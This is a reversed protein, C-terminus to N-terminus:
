SGAAERYARAFAAAADAWTPRARASALGAAALASREADDTLLGRLARAFADPGTGDAWAAVGGLVEPLAGVRSCVVPVGSAQAELAPLGFGEYETPYLLAEAGALLTALADDDVPGAHVVGDQAAVTEPGVVVLRCLGAGGARRWADAAVGLRRRAAGGFAVVYPQEDKAGPGDPPRPGFRPDAALPAVVVRDPSVRYRECVDERVVESAVIIRRATRAAHRAQARFAIRKHAPLWDPRFEFTLDWISVVMPVPQRYPLGYFPCHFVGPFGRLWRPAADQLWATASPVVSRLAVGEGPLPGRRPDYLLTVDLETELLPVVHQLVRGIGSTPHDQMNRADIAVQM